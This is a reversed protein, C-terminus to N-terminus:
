GHLYLLTFNLFYLVFLGLSTWDLARYLRSKNRYLLGVIVIGTMMMASMTSIVHNSSIDSLLPKKLYFLDVIALIFINFLNSGLVNAFAMNLAGLRLAAITIALEPLSTAGAIFLTGVFTDDWRMAISLNAGIFPLWIGAGVVVSSAALYRVIAHRLTLHPYREAQIEVFEQVQRKEYFFVSRMAILYLLIIFPTYVGVHGFAWDPFRNGLLICFGTFGILLIGFGSSLIHGQSARLFVSEDPSLYDLVVLIALNFVCSGLINGVAIDPVDALSVASVGTVLEPLSSVTALLILGIWSGSMGTKEAIIDAYRSLGTGAFLILASCVAFQLWVLMTNSM